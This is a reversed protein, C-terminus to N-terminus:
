FQKNVANNQAISYFFLAYNSSLNLKEMLIMM